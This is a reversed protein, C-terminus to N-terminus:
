LSELTFQSGAILKSVQKFAEDLDQLGNKAEVLQGDKSSQAIQRLTDATKLRGVAIIILMVDQADADDRFRSILQRPVHKSMNDDGDTLCVIVKMRNGAKQATKFNDLGNWIADYCATLGGARTLSLMQRRTAEAEKGSGKQVMRIRQSVTTSFTYVSLRDEADVHDDYLAVMNDVAKRILGGAMSGSNDLLFIFDKQVSKANPLRSMAEEAQRHYGLCKLAVSMQIVVDTFSMIDVDGFSTLAQHYALVADHIQGKAMLLDGQAALARLKQANLSEEDEESAECESYEQMLESLGKEAQSLVDHYKAKPRAAGTENSIRIVEAYLSLLKVNDCRAEMTDVFSPNHSLLTRLSEHSLRCAEQLDDLSQDISVPPDADPFTQYTQQPVFRQPWHTELANHARSEFAKALNLQRSALTKVLSENGAGGKQQDELMEEVNRIADEYSSIAQTYARRGVYIAGLNTHCVGLGKEHGLRAFLAMADMFTKEAEQLGAFMSMFSRKAVM